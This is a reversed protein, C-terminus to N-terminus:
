ITNNQKIHNLHLTVSPDCDILQICVVTWSVLKKHMMTFCLLLVWICIASLSHLPLLKLRPWLFLLFPLVACACFSLLLSLKSQIFTCVLHILSYPAAYARLSTSFCPLFVRCELVWVIMSNLPLTLPLLLFLICSAFLTELRVSTALCLSKLSTKPEYEFSKHSLESESAFVSQRAVSSSTYQRACQSSSHWKDDGKDILVECLAWVFSSGFAVGTHDFYIVSSPDHWVKDLM